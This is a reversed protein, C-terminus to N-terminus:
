GLCICCISYSCFFSTFSFFIIFSFVFPFSSLFFKPSSLSFGFPFSSLFFGSPLSSLFHPITRAFVLFCPQLLFFPDVSQHSINTLIFRIAAAKTNDGMQLGDCYGAACAVINKLAGCIEVTSADSVVTVRFLCKYITGVEIYIYVKSTQREIFPLVASGIPGLM